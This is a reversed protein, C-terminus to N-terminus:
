KIIDRASIKQLPVQNESVFIVTLETGAFEKGVNSLCGQKIPSCVFIKDQQTIIIDKDKAKHGVIVIAKSVNVAVEVIPNGEVDVKGYHISDEKRIKITVPFVIEVPNNKLQTAPIGLFKESTTKYGMNFQPIQSPQKYSGYPLTCIYQMNKYEYNEIVFTFKNSKFTNHADKSWKIIDACTPIKKGELYGIKYTIMKEEPSYIINLFKSPYDQRKGIRGFSQATDCYSLLFAIPFSEFSIMPLGKEMLNEYQNHVSIAFAACLCDAQNVNECDSFYKLLLLAGLVGHDQTNIISKLYNKILADPNTQGQKDFYTQLNTMYTPFKTGTLLREWNFNVTFKEEFTDKLFNKLETQIKEFIYAHDHFFSVLFWIRLINFESIKAPDDVTKTTNTNPIFEEFGLLNIIVYGTVFVHFQHMFHDRYDSLGELLLEEHKKFKDLFDTFNKSKCSLELHEFIDNAYYEVRTLIEDHGVYEHRNLVYFLHLTDEHIKQNIEKKDIGVFKRKLDKLCDLLRMGGYLADYSDNKFQPEASLILEVFLPLYEEINIVQKDLNEEVYNINKDYFEITLVGITRNKGGKKHNLPIGISCASRPKIGHLSNLSASAKNKEFQEKIHIEHQSRRFVQATIGENYITKDKPIESIKGKDSEYKTFVVYKRPRNKYNFNWYTGDEKAKQAIDIFKLIKIDKMEIPKLKDPIIYKPDTIEHGTKATEKDYAENMEKLREELIEKKEEEDMKANLYLYCADAEAGATFIKRFLELIKKITYKIKTAEETTKDTISENSSFRNNIKEKYEM